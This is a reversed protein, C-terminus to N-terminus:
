QTNYYWVMLEASSYVALALTCYCLLSDPFFICALRVTGILIKSHSVLGTFFFSVPIHLVYKYTTLIFLLTCTLAVEIVNNTLLRSIM